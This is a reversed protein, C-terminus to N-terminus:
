VSKDDRIYENPKLQFVFDCRKQFVCINDGYICSDNCRRFHNILKFKLEVLYSYQRNKM